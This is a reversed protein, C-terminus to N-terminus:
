ALNKERIVSMLGESYESITFTTKWSTHGTLVINPHQDISELMREGYERLIEKRSADLITMVDPRVIAFAITEVMNMIQPRINNVILAHPAAQSLVDIGIYNDTVGPLHAVTIVIIDAKFAENMPVFPIKTNETFEPNEKRGSFLIHGFKQSTQCKILINKGLNGLGIVALKENLQYFPAFFPLEHQRGAARKKLLTLDCIQQITTEVVAHIGGGSSYIPIQLQRSFDLAARNYIPFPEMGLFIHWQVEPCSKFIQETLFTPGGHILGIADFKKVLDCLEVESVDYDVVLLHFTKELWSAAPGTLLEPGTLVVKKKKKM